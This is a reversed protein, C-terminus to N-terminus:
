GGGVITVIELNDGEKIIQNDWTEPGIIIGNYEIVITKPHYKLQKILSTLTKSNYESDIVAQEGNIQINM